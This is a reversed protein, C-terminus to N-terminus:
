RASMAISPPMVAPRGIATDISSRSFRRAANAENVYGILTMKHLPSHSSKLQRICVPGAERDLQRQRM